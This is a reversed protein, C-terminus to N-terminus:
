GRAIYLYRAWLEAEFAPFFEEESERILSDAIWENGEAAFADRLDVAAAYNRQWFAVCNATHESVEYSLRRQQLAEAVPSRQPGLAEPPDHAEREHMTHIAFQGGPRLSALVADITQELDAVWYLADVSIAADYSAPPLDLTNLDGLVFNLRDRKGETRALAVEIASPSIDLGTVRAGTRDSIYEAIGGAGCGLDLLAAGRQLRLRDLLDDLAAMDIMGEQCLDKGFARECLKSHTESANAAPYFKRYYYWYRDPREVHYHRALPAGTATLSLAEDTGTVLGRERLKDAANGPDARFPGFRESANELSIRDTGLDEAGARALSALFQIEDEGLSVTTNSNTNM